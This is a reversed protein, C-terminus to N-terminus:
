SDNPEKLRRSNHAMQQVIHSICGIHQSSHPALAQSLIIFKTQCLRCTVVFSPSRFESIQIERNGKLPEMIFEGKEFIFNSDLQERNLNIVEQQRSGIM